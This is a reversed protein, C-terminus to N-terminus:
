SLPFFLATVSSSLYSSVLSSLTLLFLRISLSFLPFFSAGRYFSSSFISYLIVSSLYPPPFFTFFYLQHHFSPFFLFLPSLLSSFSSLFFFFRTIYLFFLSLPYISTVTSPLLPFSSFFLLSLCLLSSSLSLLLPLM